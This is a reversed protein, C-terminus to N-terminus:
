AKAKASPKAKREERLTSVSALGLAFPALLLCFFLAVGVQDQRLGKITLALAAGGSLLWVFACAFYVPESM